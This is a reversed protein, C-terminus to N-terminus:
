KKQVISNTTDTKVISRSPVFGGVNVCPYCLVEKGLLSGPNTVSNCGIQSGDGIIAGFKRFPTEIRQEGFLVSIQQRDLKLNACKTGAGLNIGNGLISDGVYAFHAAHANDLLITNKIETDHGIVCRDGTIISGRIYAGHRVVCHKGIICPGQIYAGPEIVSGEGITITEPNILYAQPSIQGLKSGLSTKKLYREINALALWVFAEEDFLEKHAYNGLNFFYSPHLQKILLYEENNRVTRRKISYKKLANEQFSEFSMLINVICLM